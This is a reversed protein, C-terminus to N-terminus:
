SRDKEKERGRNVLFLDPRALFDQPRSVPHGGQQSVHGQLLEQLCPCAEQDKGESHTDKVGYYIKIRSSRQFYM